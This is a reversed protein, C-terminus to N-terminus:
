MWRSGERRRREKSRRKSQRGQVKMLLPPQSSSPALGRSQPQKRSVRRSRV